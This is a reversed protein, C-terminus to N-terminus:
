GGPNQVAASSTPSIAASVREATLAPVEGVVTLVQDGMRRAFAVTGGRQAWGDPDVNVPAPEIFVSFVALGDTFTASQDREGREQGALVFGKPLWTITVPIPQIAEGTQSPRRAIQAATVHGATEPELLAPDITEMISISGFQFRELVRGLSDVLLSRLLLGTEKDISLIYGHRYADLPKVQLRVADRNAIRDIGGVSLQYYSDLARYAGGFRRALSLENSGRGVRVLEQGVQMNGVNDGKRVIERPKGSMHIMREHEVGDIVGHVIKLTELNPGHEYSFVGTYNTERVGRSMKDLWQRPTLETEIASVPAPTVSAQPAPAPTQAQAVTSLFTLGLLLSSFKM